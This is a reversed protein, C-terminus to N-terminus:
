LTLDELEFWHDDDPGSTPQHQVLQLNGKPKLQELAQKNIRGEAIDSLLKEELQDRGGTILTLQTKQTTNKM